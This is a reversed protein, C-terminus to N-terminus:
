SLILAISVVGLLVGFAHRPSVNEGAWVGYAVVILVVGVTMVPSVKSISYYKLAMYYAIFALLYSAISGSLYAFWVAQKSELFSARKLCIQALSSFLIGSVIYIWTM